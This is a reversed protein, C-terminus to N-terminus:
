KRLIEKNFRECFEKGLPFSDAPACGGTRSGSYYKWFFAYLKTKEDQTTDNRYITFQCYNKGCSASYWFYKTMILHYREYDIHPIDIVLSSNSEKGFFWADETTPIGNELIWLDEAKELAHMMSFAEEWRSKEVAKQYQPLAVAALIGIILVVVLLEILTFGQKSCFYGKYGRKNM